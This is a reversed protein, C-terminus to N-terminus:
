EEEDEEVEEVVFGNARLRRHIHAMAEQPTMDGVEDMAQTFVQRLKEMEDHDPEGEAQTITFAQM